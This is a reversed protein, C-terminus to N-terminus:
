LEQKFFTTLRFVVACKAYVVLRVGFAVRLDGKSLFLGVILRLIDGAPPPLTIGCAIPM